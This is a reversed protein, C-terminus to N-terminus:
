KKCSICLHWGLKKDLINKMDQPMTRFWDEEIYENNKYADVKYKFIHDQVIEIDKFNHKSLLEIVDQHSYVNAVPCGSQAEFQDFEGEIMFNKWSNKAYLMLKFEGGSKLVSYINQIALDINPTHHLVGFSYVLDFNNNYQLPLPEEINWEFINYEHLLSKPTSHALHKKTLEISNTSLDVGTYNAGSEVFYYGATGIGCGVELVNKNTYKQFDAFSKIHPEVFMKKGRVEEFYEKSGLEKKSHRINCPQRDWFSKVDTLSM